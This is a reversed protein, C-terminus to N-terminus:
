DILKAFSINQPYKGPRLLVFLDLKAALELFAVIDLNGSFNFEDSLLNFM